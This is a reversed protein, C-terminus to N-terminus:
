YAYEIPDELGVQKFANRRIICSDCKGCALAGPQPNYCSWTLSYDVSLEEGLRIIEPKSLDILPSHIRIKGGEAGFKTGINALKEFAQIYEPRCDPYGSFDVANAGIFIDHAGIQEAYALAMSLFVTNRAPVYTPPIDKSIESFNRNEPINKKNTLASGLFLRRDLRIIKHRRTLHYFKAVKKSHEIELSHRQGYVFTIAYCYFGENIAYALTTTSDLGGSLLVVALRENIQKSM